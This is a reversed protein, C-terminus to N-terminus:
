RRFKELEKPQKPEYYPISCVSNVSVIAIVQSLNALLVAMMFILTTHKKESVSIKTVVFSIVEALLGLSFSFILLSPAVMCGYIIILGEIIVIVCSVKKAKKFDQLAVDRNQHVVPQFLFIIIISVIAISIAATTTVNTPVIKLCVSFVGYIVLSLLYCRWRTTAHYGGAFLRLPIFALFFLVTELFNGFVGALILISGIEITSLLLMELDYCYIAADEEDIAHQAILFHTLKQATNYM